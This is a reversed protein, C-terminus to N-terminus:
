LPRHIRSSIVVSEHLVLLVTAGLVIAPPVCTLGLHEAALGTLGPLAAGGLTAASVQFGIAHAAYEVGLRQPTRSMLCPFLPALALGMLVLGLSSLAGGTALAFTIAGLIVVFTCLRLLRDIGIREVVVGLLLRGVGISGWYISVLVGAEAAPLGRSETLLTFSWQGITVELGTYIFFLVIQLWVLPRALAALTSVPTVHSAAQSGAALDQWGGRTATFLLSLLLMISGLVAYGVRWSASGTIAATMLLPGLM